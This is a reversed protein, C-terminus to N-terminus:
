KEPFEKKEDINRYSKIINGIKTNNDSDRQINEKIEVTQLSLVNKGSCCKTFDGGFFQHIEINKYCCYIQVILIPIITAGCFVIISAATGNKIKFKIPESYCYFFIFIVIIIFFIFCFYSLLAIKIVYDRFFNQIKKSESKSECKMTSYTEGICCNKDNYYTKNCLVVCYARFSQDLLRNGTGYITNVRPDKINNFAEYYPTWSVIKKILIIILTFNIKKM